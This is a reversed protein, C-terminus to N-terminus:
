KTEKLAKTLWDRLEKAQKRKVGYGNIVIDNHNPDVSAEVLPVYVQPLSKNSYLIRVCKM